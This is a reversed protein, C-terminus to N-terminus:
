LDGLAEGLFGLKQFARGDKIELGVLAGGSSLAIGIAKLGL